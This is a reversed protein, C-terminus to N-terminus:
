ASAPASSSTNPVVIPPFSPRSQLLKKKLGAAEQRLIAMDDPDVAAVLTQVSPVPQLDGLQEIQCLILADDIAMQYAVLAAQDTGLNAPVPVAAAAAYTDALTAPRLTFSRALVDGVMVGLELVSTVRIPSM